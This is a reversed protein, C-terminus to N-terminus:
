QKGEAILEVVKELVETSLSSWDFERILKLIGHRKNAVRIAAKREETAEELFTYHWADYPLCSGNDRRFKGGKELIIQTKTLRQVKSISDSYIRDGAVIVEDGEKLEDLWSM